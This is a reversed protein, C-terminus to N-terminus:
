VVHTMMYLATHSAHTLRDLAERQQVILKPTGSNAAIMPPLFKKALWMHAMTNVAM